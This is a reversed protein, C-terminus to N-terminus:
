PKREWAVGLQFGSQALIFSPLDTLVFSGNGKLEVQGLENVTLDIEGGAEYRFERERGQDSLLVGWSAKSYNAIHRHGIDMVNVDGAGPITLRFNGLDKFKAPMGKHISGSEGKGTYNVYNLQVHDNTQVNLTYSMIM